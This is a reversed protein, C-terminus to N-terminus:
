LHSNLHSNLVSNSFGASIPAVVVGQGRLSMSNWEAHKKWRGGAEKEAEADM